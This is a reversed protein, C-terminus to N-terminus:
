FYVLQTVLFSLGFVSKLDINIEQLNSNKDLSLFEAFLNVTKAGGSSTSNDRFM